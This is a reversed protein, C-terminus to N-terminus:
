IQRTDVQPAVVFDYELQRQNGHYVLDVGPFVGTYKVKRFTPVDSHWQGPDSGILYNTKGPLQESGTVRLAASAGSLQM